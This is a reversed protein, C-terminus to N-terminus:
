IADKENEGFWKWTNQIGQKIDVEPSFNLYKKSKSINCYTNKIEGKRFDEYNVEFEKGSVDKLISIIENISTPKGTGLQYVGPEKIELGNVIGQCLDTVYIYDRLQSGDGYVTLPKDQLIQKIFHAVVSGKHYSLPGYVNAFRLAVFDIGYSAAYASLYGEAFLKSAGYPSTPTPFMEENIPPDKEGLIAGGTSAFAVNQIGHKRCSELINFTGLVNTEFNFVPNAISDMVRTDAALHVVKDVRSLAKHIDAQNRIDGKIYEIDGKLNEINRPEKLDYIYVKHGKELLLPTLNSGIFGSGGTILISNM